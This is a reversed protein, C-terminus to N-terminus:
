YINKFKDSFELSIPRAYIVNGKIKEVRARIKDGLAGGNVIVQFNGYKGVGRGRDDVSDIDVAILEGVKVENKKALDRNYYSTIRYSYPDEVESRDRDRRRL